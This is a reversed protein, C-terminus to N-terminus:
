RRFDAIEGTKEQSILLGSDDFTYRYVYSTGGITFSSTALSFFTTTISEIDWLLAGKDSVSLKSGLSGKVSYFDQPTGTTPDCVLLLATYNDRVLPTLEESSIEQMGNAFLYHLIPTIEHWGVAGQDESDPKPVAYASLYVNGNFEIMDTIYYYADESSYSFSDTITGDYDVKVIKAHENAMYSGLQVIYGEGFKAANGIGYNGIETKAFHMREGDASYQSLCLNKRDGRSFVAYSGDQNEVIEAIYEDAFGNDLMQKWVMNGDTDVKMLWAYTSQASSWTSTCGYVIVGDSVANYGKIRFESVAVRWLLTEGHYKEIYSKDHVTFGLDADEKYESRFSYHIGEQTSGIFRDTFNIYNWLNEIDEPTPNDQLIEYGDVHDTSISKQIVEATKSYTFSKTTIDQYVARIEGRTLGETSLNYDSFFQVATKYEKAEAIVASAGFCLFLVLAISAALTGWKVWIPKKHVKKAAPAASAIHRDDIQGIIDLLRRNKM